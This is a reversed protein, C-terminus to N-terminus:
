IKKFFYKYQKNQFEFWIKQQDKSIVPADILKRLEDDQLWNWSAELFVADFSCLTVAM